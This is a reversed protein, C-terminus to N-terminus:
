YVIVPTGVSVTEYIKKAADYPTNICGHSGNTLYINGGFNNGRSALDHIGVGGNFPMWYHVFATYEPEGDEKIPGKMTYETTKWFIPWCGNRPTARGERSMDGTVVPTEVVVQGDKYCWMTQKDISVEVYVNGLDNAGEGKAKKSYALELEGQAGEAIASTLQAISEERDVLWGYKNKSLTISDGSHTTFTRSGGYTDRKDAISNIFEEIKSHDISYSGNEDQLLWSKLTERDISYLEDGVQYTIRSATLANLTNAENVLQENTQYVAPKLYCELEVLNLDTKGGEIAQQVLQLVKEEDLANGEVEPVIYYETDNETMYADQPEVINKEMFFPLSCLIPLVSDRDYTFNASVEYKNGSFARKIWELPKQEAMLRDVGGDDIYAFHFQPGTITYEQGELTSITLSYKSIYEQLEQKVQYVTLYSCDMGNIYTGNYFHSAFYNARWVYALGCILLLIIVLSLGALKGYISHKAQKKKKEKNLKQNERQKM